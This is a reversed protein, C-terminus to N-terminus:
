RRVRRLVAGPDLLGAIVMNAVGSASRGELRQRVGRRYFDLSRARARESIEEVLPRALRDALFEEYTPERRGDRRAAARVISFDKHALVRLSSQGNLSGPHVRYHLLPQAVNAAQTVEIARMMMDWDDVLRLPWYGGIEDLVEARILLSPHSLAHRGAWLAEVIADHETALRNVAGLQGELGLNQTWSGVMGVHPHDAMFAVQVELREPVSIDDADMRAIFRGRCLALGANAAAATGANPQRMVVLRPDEISELFSATEDASGDDVVVLEIDRLTQGLISAVAERLFPLGNYTTLLVSVLPPPPM